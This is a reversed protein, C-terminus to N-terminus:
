GARRESSIRVSKIQAQDAYDQWFSKVQRWHANTVGHTPTIGLIKFNVQTMEPILGENWLNSLFDKEPIRREMNIGDGVHQGDTFLIVEPHASAMFGPKSAVFRMFGFLDTRQKKKSSLMPVLEEEWCRAWREAVQQKARVLVQGAPGAEAPLEMVFIAEQDSEARSHILYVELKDGPRAHGILLSITEWDKPLEEERGATIDVGIVTHRPVEDVLEAQRALMLANEAYPRFDVYGLQQAGIAGGMALSSAFLFVTLSKM